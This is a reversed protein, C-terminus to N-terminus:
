GRAPKPAIPPLGPFYFSPHAIPQPPGPQAPKSAVEREKQPEKAKIAKGRTKSRTVHVPSPPRAIESNEVVAFGEALKHRKKPPVYFGPDIKQNDLQMMEPPPHPIAVPSPAVYAAAYAPPPQPKPVIPQAVPNHETSKIAHVQWKMLEWQDKLMMYFVRARTCVTLDPQWIAQSGFAPNFLHELMQMSPMLQALWAQFGMWEIDEVQMRAPRMERHQLRSSRAPNLYVPLTGPSAHASPSHWAHMYM